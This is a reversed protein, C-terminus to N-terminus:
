IWLIEEMRKARKATAKVIGFIYKNYWMGGSKDVLKDGYIIFFRRAKGASKM